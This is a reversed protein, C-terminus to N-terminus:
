SSTFVGSTISRESHSGGAVPGVVAVVHEGGLGLVAAGERQLRHVAGATDRDERVAQLAVAVQRDAHGLEALHVAVLRGARQVAQQAHAVERLVVRV